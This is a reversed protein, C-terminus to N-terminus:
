DERQVPYIWGTDEALDGKAFCRAHPHVDGYVCDPGHGPPVTADRIVVRRRRRFLPWLRM